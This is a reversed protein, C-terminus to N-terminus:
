GEEVHENRDDTQSSEHNGKLERLTKLVDEQNKLMVKQTDEIAQVKTSLERIRRYMEERNQRERRQASWNRFTMWISYVFALVILVVIVASTIYPHM